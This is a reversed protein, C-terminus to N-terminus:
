PATIPAAHDFASYTTIQDLTVAKGTTTVRTKLEFMMIHGSRDLTFIVQIPAPTGGTTLLGIKAADAASIQGLLQGAPNMTLTTSAHLAALLSATPSGNTAVKATAAHWPGAGLRVFRAPGIRVVSESHTGSVVAYALRGPLVARGKLTVRHTGLVSSSTFTYSNLASTAAIAQERAADANTGSPVIASTTAPASTKAQATASSSTCAALLPLSLATGALLAVLSFSRRGARQGRDARTPATM